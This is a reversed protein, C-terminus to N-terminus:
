ETEGMHPYLSFTATQLGPFYEGLLLIQQCRTKPNGAELIRFVVYTQSKLWLRRHYKTIAACVLVMKVFNITACYFCIKFILNLYHFLVVIPKYFDDLFAM